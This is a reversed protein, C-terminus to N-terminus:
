HCSTNTINKRQAKSSSKLYFPKMGEKAVEANKKEVKDIQGDSWGGEGFTKRNLKERLKQL